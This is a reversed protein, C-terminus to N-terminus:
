KEAQVLVPLKKNVLRPVVTSKRTVIKFHCVFLAGLIVLLMILDFGDIFSAVHAERIVLAM